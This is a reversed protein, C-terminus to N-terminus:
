FMHNRHPHRICLPFAPEAAQVQEKPPRVKLNKCFTITFMELKGFMSRNTPLLCGNRGFPLAVAAVAEPRSAFSTSTRCQKSCSNHLIPIFGLTCTNWASHFIILTNLNLFLDPKILKFIRYLLPELNFWSRSDAPFQWICAGCAGLDPASSTAGHEFEPTLKSDWAPRWKKFAIFSMGQFQSLQSMAWHRALHECGIDFVDAQGSCGKMASGEAVDLYKASNTPVKRSIKVTSHLTKAIRHLKQFFSNPSSAGMCSSKTMGRLRASSSSFQKSSVKGALAKWTGSTGTVYLANATAASYINKSAM